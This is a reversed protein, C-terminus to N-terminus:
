LLLNKLLKLWPSKSRPTSLLLSYKYNFRPTTFTTYSVSHMALSQFKSQLLNTSTYYLVHIIGMLGPSGSCNGYNKTSNRIQCIGYLTVCHVPIVTENM